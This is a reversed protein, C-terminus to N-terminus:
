GTPNQIDVVCVIEGVQVTEGAPARIELLTGETTAEVTQTVKETEIEYLPDGAKFSDGPAKLWSVITAEEMSMGIRPLKVQVKM